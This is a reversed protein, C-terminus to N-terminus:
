ATIFVVGAHAHVCAYPTPLAQIAAKVLPATNDVVVVTLLITAAAVVAEAAVKAGCKM